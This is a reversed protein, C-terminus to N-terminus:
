GHSERPLFALTPKGFGGVPSRGSGPIPDTDRIDGLNAPLKKVM